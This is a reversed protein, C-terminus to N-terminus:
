FFGGRDMSRMIRQIINVYEFLIHQEFFQKHQFQQVIHQNFRSQQFIFINLLKVYQQQIYQVLLVLLVIFIIFQQYEFQKIFFFQFLVHQQQVIVM